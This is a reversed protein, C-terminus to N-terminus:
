SFQRKVAQRGSPPLGRAGMLRDIGERTVLEFYDARIREAEIRQQAVADATPNAFHRIAEVLEGSSIVRRFLLRPITAPVPDYTLGKQNAMVIVPVGVALAELCTSSAETILLEAHGLLQLFSPERSFSVTDPLPDRIRMAVPREGVSPHPKIVYRVRRGQVNVSAETALLLQVIRVSTEVSIPLTVLVNFDPTGVREPRRWRWVHQTRLAPVLIVELDPLFEKVTIATRRGQVAIADPIVGAQKEALTPYSCLYFPFSEYARYGVRRAKPYYRRVALNWAKDIVQGEFWDIALRVDRGSQSLRAISRYTLISEIITPVDANLEMEERVLGSIDLDRFKVQPIDLATMRRRYQFAYALDGLLLYDDKVLVQRASRRLAAYMPRMKTLPTDVVTPLFHAEERMVDTLNDWLIGYWRDESPYAASVFTDILVMPRASYLGDGPRRTSRAVYYQCLRRACLVPTSFFRTKIRKALTKLDRSVKVKCREDGYATLVSRILRAIAPGDVVVMPFDFAGEEMLHCILLLCCYNHFFPSALTNRSAPGQVWWDVNDDHPLSLTAVVENFPARSDHAVREFVPCIEIPMEGHFRLDLVQNEIGDRTSRTMNHAPFVAAITPCIDKSRSTGLWPKIISRRGRVLCM